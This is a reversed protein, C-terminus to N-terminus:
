QIRYLYDQSGGALDDLPPFKVKVVRKDRMLALIELSRTLLRVLVIELVVPLTDRM